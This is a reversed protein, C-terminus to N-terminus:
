AFVDYRCAFFSWALHGLVVNTRGSAAQFATEKGPSGGAQQAVTQCCVSISFHRFPSPHAEKVCTMIRSSIEYVTRTRRPADCTESESESKHCM